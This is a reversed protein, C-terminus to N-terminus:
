WNCQIVCIIINVRDKLRKTSSCLPKRLQWTNTSRSAAHMRLLWRLQPRLSKVVQKENGRQWKAAAAKSVADIEKMKIKKETNDCAENFTTTVCFEVLEPTQSHKLCM